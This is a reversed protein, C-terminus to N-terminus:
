PTKRTPTNVESTLARTLLNFLGTKMACSRHGTKTLNQRNPVIQLLCPGIQVTNDQNVTREHQLSFVFDLNKGRVPIFAHGPQAAPVTFRRNFEALYPERLFENAGAVSQIGHM